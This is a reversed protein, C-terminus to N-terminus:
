IIEDMEKELLVMDHEDIVAPPVTILLVSYHVSVYDRLIQVLRLVSKFGNNTILYDVGDLLVVSPAILIFKEIVVSLKELDRPRICEEKATSSLWVVPIDTDGFRRRVIDPFVRTICIGRVGERVSDQVLDFPMDKTDSKIMYTYTFRITPLGERTNIKGSMPAEKMVKKASPIGMGCRGCEHAGVPVLCECLPCFRNEGEFVPERPITM